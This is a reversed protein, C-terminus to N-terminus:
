VVAISSRASPPLRMHVLHFRFEYIYMYSALLHLTYGVSLTLLVTGVPMPVTGGDVVVVGEASM